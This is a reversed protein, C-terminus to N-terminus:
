LLETVVLEHATRYEFDNEGIMKKYIRSHIEGKIHIIDNVSKTSLEKAENGWAVCPLYSNLKQSDNSVNLNNAIIFHICSKGNELVRLDNIKCIRGDIDFENIVDDENKDFYTFVYVDVKNKGNIQKSYSRVNGIISITDDEQFTNSFKKFKLTIIDERTGDRSVILNAKDYEIDGVNHSPKIDKIIGRLKVINM